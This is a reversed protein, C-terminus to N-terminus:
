ILIERARDFFSVSPYKTSFAPSDHSITWVSINSLDHNLWLPWLSKEHNEARWTDFAQGSLGHIFVIDLVPESNDYLASVIAM